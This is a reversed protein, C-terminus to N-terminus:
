SPLSRLMTSCTAVAATHWEIEVEDSELRSLHLFRVSAIDGPALTVGLAADIALSERTADIESAATIARYFRAGALTEIALHRRDARGALFRAYGVNRVTIATASAGIPELVELDAAQTASWFPTRRGARAALWGRLAVVDARSGLTWHWSKLLSALGSLDDVWPAGTDYDLTELQRSAEIETPEAWNTRALYVRHGAYTDGSDAAAVGPNDDIAFAVRGTLHHATERTLGQRAPLRALRVPYLQTGAPWAALTAARLTLASAGVSAIEVSEHVDHSRWLLALGGPAFEYGATTAPVTMSGAALPAALTQPDTWVPLAYLRAQWGLLLTELVNTQHRDRTALAYELARRPVARLGIRQETGAQTLLVDTLWTLRERVPEAWNPPHGFVVVRRGIVRLTPSEAPFAFTYTAAISAPGQTAVTISFTSEQLPAFTTPAVIGTATIGDTGIAGISSLAQPTFHANWVTAQRTQVSLLNGINLVPPVVHVRHYFDDAYSRAVLGARVLPTTSVPYHEALTQAGPSPAAARTALTGIWAASYGDLDVSLYLRPHGSIAVAALFGALVTM